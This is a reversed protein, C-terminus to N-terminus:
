RKLPAKIDFVLRGPTKLSFIDLAVRTKFTVEMSLMDKHIPFFHVSKILRAKKLSPFPPPLSTEFFDVFAKHGKKSFHGYLRPPTATSFDVVLREYGEKKKDHHRLGKLTSPGGVAGNHFFGDRIFLGKKTTPIKRIKGTLLNQSSLPLLFLGSVILLLLRM